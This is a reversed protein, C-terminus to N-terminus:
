LDLSAYHAHTVIFRKRPAVVDGMLMSFVVDAKEADENTIRKLIRNEPNLTTDWLQDPNMEGLGKYRQIYPKAKMKSSQTKLIEDRQLDSYAYFITKSGYSIKYLPPQALYLYGLEIIQPMYRFFFTLLLTSIHAGDVDADTMIVIRHYRLKNIDFSDGIGAGLAIVLVKIEEFDL